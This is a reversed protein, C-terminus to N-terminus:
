PVRKGSRGARRVTNVEAQIADMSMPNRCAKTARAAGETLAEAARTPKADKLLKPPARSMLLGAERRQM